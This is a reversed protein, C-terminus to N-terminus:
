RQQQKNDDRTKQVKIKMKHVDTMLKPKAGQEINVKHIDTMLKTKAGQEINVKGQVKCINPRSRDGPQYTATTTQPM